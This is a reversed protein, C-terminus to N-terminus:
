YPIGKKPFLRKNWHHILKEIYFKLFRILKNNWWSSKLSWESHFKKAVDCPLFAQSPTLPLILLNAAWVLRWCESESWIRVSVCNNLNAFHFMLPTVKSDSVVIVWVSHRSERNAPALVKCSLWWWNIWEFSLLSFSKLILRNM